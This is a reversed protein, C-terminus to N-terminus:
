FTQRLQKVDSVDLKYCAGRRTNRITEDSVTKYIIELLSLFLMSEYNWFQTSKNFMSHPTHIYVEM